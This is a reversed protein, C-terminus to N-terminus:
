TKNRRDRKWFRPTAMMKSMYSGRPADEMELVRPKKKECGGAMVELVVDAVTREALWAPAVSWDVAVEVDSFDM